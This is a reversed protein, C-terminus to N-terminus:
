LDLGSVISCVLSLGILCERFLNGWTSLNGSFGTIILILLKLLIIVQNERDFLGAFNLL